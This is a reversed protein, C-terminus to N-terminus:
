HSSHDFSETNLLLSVLHVSRLKEVMVMNDAWFCGESERAVLVGSKFDQVISAASMRYWYSGPQNRAVIDTARDEDLYFSGRTLKDYLDRIPLSRM